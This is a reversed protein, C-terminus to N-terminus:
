NVMLSPSAQYTAIWAEFASATLPRSILYGQATDCHWRRLLDLSHQYEVGEAVVKLGLNHSMEITSRVIVADESTEDLNRVFSQDIKLEQVPLRKLHALSSYGTGFDDVSLSIGCDRLRHLVVLAKEPESMVASETIEFVLQEAPVAYQKLLKMVYGALDDGLLDDASINVSVQLVLGRQRWEALQRMAEEIVWNTLLNISGTREALVIFEAPSVNGFRPHTWRLLAEAQRVYGQRIDLKPQYHLMLEGNQPAKRLDRILCIQRQHALDRGDQYIQLRGPIFAADKRAIAARNVLEQASDGHEPYVTIGICCELMLDHNDIRQPESLLRQVADAMGVAGDSATNDLLLLFENASLRAVTDGSRLNGQLRQGLQRLLQEVGEAGASENITALNEIGLYLLAVTRNAAILSGLREMVLARNPLGTLNDHLANHALQGERVAIGQQMTNIADALMGLEDSRVLTVPTKYDGDGIRKAAIALEQVPLSVSRALALTGLLSALLAIMSIWFIKENLPAFAQYAKDLPSQLLAIVQGDDGNSSKALMLTQSLFNLNAQETLLMQGESSSRMLEILGAYLAKPQTSILEGSQGNEVTLFSVELGSLSRLEEAIGSDITFGMVVRGIPLPALVTSEVLLHPIGGGPIILVSQGARKANRLAQDYVFRSGEPVATETSAVVVGDMGLLFMDSANIRKGHNLLVSRITSSDASAVADRFGFDAALLQVADRLRKGRLDILREFVRSGVELQAQAQTRVADDTAVKVALFVAGVVILLLAILVGAIRAQFSAKFKM